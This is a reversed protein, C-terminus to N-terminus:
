EVGMLSLALAIGAGDFWEGHLRFASLKEHMHREDTVTGRMTAGIELPVPSGTQLAGLRSEPHTAFGIKFRLPGETTRVLYVYGFRDERKVHSRHKEFARVRDRIEKPAVNELWSERTAGPHTVIYGWMELTWKMPDEPDIPDDGENLELAGRSM